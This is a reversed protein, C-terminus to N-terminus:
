ACCPARTALAADGDGSQRERRARARRARGREARRARGVSARGRAARRRRRADRDCAYLDARACSAPGSRRSAGCTTPCRRRSSIPASGIPTPSSCIAIRPPSAPRTRAERVPARRHRGLARRVAGGRVHAARHDRPDAGAHRRAILGGALEAIDHTSSSGSTATARAGAALGRRRAADRAGELQFGLMSEVARLARAARPQHDLDHVGALAARRRGHTMQVSGCGLVRAAAYLIM